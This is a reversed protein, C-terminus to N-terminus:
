IDFDFDDLASIQEKSAEDLEANLVESVQEGNLGWLEGLNEAISDKEAATFDAFARRLSVLARKFEEDDLSQIYEDISEWLSLRAILGYRNKMTLGEFWGAGLEAPVGKSLRRSVETKLEDNTMRSRELLIAAAFGSLKTNLDDRHAVDNLASIWEETDLFDQALEVSNLMSMAEAIAGSATEDCVCTGTVILCARYYLQRIIPILPASDAQRIDGYSVANSLRLATRALEEFSVSDVAMAQLAAVAYGAASSMGCYFADEIAEAVTSMNDASEVREKLVFSAALEVTDGKLASEVLAIESEPTWCVTWGEAWTASDQTSALRKAFDIGLVRLKHLFFSRNLDLFASKESNARRNERLDLKLEQETVSKYKELKLDKLLRYFDDQISTRSVGEPLAGIKTGIEVDAAAISIAAFSGEGICTEAADRLDRLTPVSGGRMESLSAALRVAEIVQASSAANGNKRHAAAIKTLYANASYFPEGRKYADWILEYYGPAKNGAGYGSRTSLRYYSYPMLTHLADTKPLEEIKEDSEWLKLGEVHYAGTVVVIKDPTIGESVAKRICGRMYNERLAIERADDRDESLARINEGFLNAGENYAAIDTCHELTREWFTEHSNEGSLKDLKEYVSEPEDETQEDYNDSNEEENESTEDEDYSDDDEDSEANMEEYIREEEAIREEYLALFTESPLDMFRFEVKNEHCWLIAQYEPSYEAFPYLITRVPAHNTYALIAFPPETEPRTIDAAVDAFDSPAEILVLKPRIEDLYGRLYHAGAPSLHRIGFFNVSM